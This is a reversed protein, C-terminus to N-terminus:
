KTGQAVLGLVTAATARLTIAISSPKSFDWDVCVIGKVEANHDVRCAVYARGFAVAATVPESTVIKRGEHVITPDATPGKAYDAFSRAAAGYSGYALYLSQGPTMKPGTACASLALAAILPILFRRM